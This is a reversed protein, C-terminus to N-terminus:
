KSEDKKLLLYEYFFFFAALSRVKSLDKDTAAAMEHTRHIQDGQQHLMDLTKTANGRIDEAIRLCNKTTNTTEEAKYVAYNELEQVSQSQLGGSDRFDNKYKDRSGSSSYGSSPNDNFNPTILVPESATRRSTKLSQKKDCEDDSTYCSKTSPQSDVPKPKSSSWLFGFM